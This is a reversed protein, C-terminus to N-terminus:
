IEVVGEKPSTTKKQYFPSIVNPKHGFSLKGHQKARKM